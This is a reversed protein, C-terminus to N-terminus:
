ARGDEKRAALIRATTAMAQEFDRAARAARNLAECAYFGPDGFSPPVFHPGLEGCNPCRPALRGTADQVWRRRKAARERRTSV